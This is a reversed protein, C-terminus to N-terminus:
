KTTQEKDKKIALSLFYIFGGLICGLILIMSIITTVTM